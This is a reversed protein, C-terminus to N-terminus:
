MRSGFVEFAKFASEPDRRLTQILQRVGEIGQEQFLTEVREAGAYPWEPYQGARIYKWVRETLEPNNRAAHLEMWVALSENVPMAIEWSSPFSPGIPLLGTKDLGTTLIAHFHEYILINRQLLRVLAFDELQISTGERLRNNMEEQADHCYLVRSTQPLTLEVPIHHDWAWAKLQEDCEPATTPVFIGYTPVEIAFFDQVASPSTFKLLIRLLNIKGIAFLRVFESFLGSLLVKNEEGARGQGKIEAQLNLDPVILSLIEWSTQPISYEIRLSFDGFWELGEEFLRSLQDFLTQAVELLSSNGHIPAIRGEILINRVWHWPPKVLEGVWAQLNNIPSSTSIQQCISGVLEVIALLGEDINEPPKVFRFHEDYQPLRVKLEYHCSKLLAIYSDLSGRLDVFSGRRTATIGHEIFKRKHQNLFEQSDASYFSLRGNFQKPPSVKMNEIEHDFSALVFDSFSGSINVEPHQELFKSRQTMWGAKLYPSFMYLIAAESAQQVANFQEISLLRASGFAESFDNKRNSPTCEKVHFCLCIAKLIEYFSYSEAIEKDTPIVIDVTIRSRISHITYKDILLTVVPYYRLGTTEELYHVAQVVDEQVNNQTSYPIGPLLPLVSVPVRPLMTTKKLISANPEPHVLPRNALQELPALDLPAFHLNALESPPKPWDAEWRLPRIFQENKRELISLAHRWEDEVYPSQSAAKSWYLQFCDSKDIFEHLVRNWQQGSRLSKKDVYVYIGLAEYAAVCADIIATDQHSYSAFIREFVQTSQVTTESVEEIIASQKVQMLIPIAAISLQNVAIDIYGPVIHDIAGSEARLRFIVEQIDEEWAVELSNPNFTIGEVHPTIRLWEGRKIRRSSDSTSLQLKTGLQAARQRVYDIAEGQLRDLHLCVLLSFWKNVSIVGPYGATFALKEEFTTKESLNHAEQEYAFLITEAEKALAQQQKVSEGVSATLEGLTTVASVSGHIAIARAVDEGKETPDILIVDIVAGQKTVLYAAQQAPAHESLGDTIVLIRFIPVGSVTRIYEGVENLAAAIDTGNNAQLTDLAQQISGLHNSYGEYILSAVSNFAFLAVRTNSGLGALHLLLAEKAANLKLVAETQRTRGSFEINGSFTEGMSGSRDLLIIWM